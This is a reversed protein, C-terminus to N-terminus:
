VAEGPQPNNFKFAFERSRRDAAELDGALQNFEAAQEHSGCFEALGRYLKARRPVPLSQAHDFCETFVNKWLESPM